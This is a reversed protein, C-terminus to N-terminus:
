DAFNLNTLCQDKYIADEPMWGTIDAATKVLYWKNQYLLLTVQQEKPVTTCVQEKTQTTYLTLPATVTSAVGVYQFEQPIFKLAHTKPDLQYLYNDTWFDHWGAVAIEGTGLFEPWRGITEMYTITKGDYWYLAYEDDDSPGPAHVAVEKYKDKKDIDVVDFGDVGYFDLQGNIKQGNIYLAYKGPNNKGLLLKINEKKGDGDLDAQATMVDTPLPPATKAALCPAFTSLCIVTTIISTWVRM